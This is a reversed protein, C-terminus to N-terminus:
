AERVSLTLDVGPAAAIRALMEVTAHQTEGFMQSVRAESVGMRRALAARPIGHEEMHGLIEAIIDNCLCEARYTVSDKFEEHLDDLMPGLDGTSM